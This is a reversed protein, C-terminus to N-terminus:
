LCVFISSGNFDLRGCGALSLWCVALKLMIASRHTIEFDRVVWLGTEDEEAPSAYGEIHFGMFRATKSLSLVSM